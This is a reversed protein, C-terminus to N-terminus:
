RSKKGAVYRPKKRSIGDVRVPELKEVEDGKRYRVKAGGNTVLVARDKEDIRAHFLYKEAIGYAKCGEKILKEDAESLPKEREPGASVVVSLAKEREKLEKERNDIFKQLKDLYKEKDTLEDAKKAVEEMKKSLEKAKKWERPSRADLDKEKKELLRSREELLQEKSALDDEKKALDQAKKEEEKGM